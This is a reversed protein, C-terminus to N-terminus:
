WLTEREIGRRNLLTLLWMGTVTKMESSAGRFSVMGGPISAVVPVWGCLWRLL